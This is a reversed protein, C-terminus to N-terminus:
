RKLNTLEELMSDSVTIIRSNAQFGRQTTIMDTFEASLDVNSMELVGSSIYGDGGATVDVGVGDFKGSNLTESYLNDGEAKLGMPNAFSATAIQGLLKTQGNDYTAYITGDTSITFGSMKGVKRGADAGSTSGATANITSTKGNNYCKTNTADITIRRNADGFNNLTLGGADPQFQLVIAEPDDIRCAGTAPDFSIGVGNVGSLTLDYSITGGQDVDVSKIDNLSTFDTGFLKNFDTVTIASGKGNLVTTGDAPDIVDEAYVLDTVSLDTKPLSYANKVTVSFPPATDNANNYEYTYTQASLTGDSNITYDFSKFSDDDNM